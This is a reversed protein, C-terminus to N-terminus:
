HICKHKKNTIEVPQPQSEPNFDMLECVGPRLDLQMLWVTPILKTPNLSTFVCILIRWFHSTFGLLGTIASPIITEHIDFVASKM